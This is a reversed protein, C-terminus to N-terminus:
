GLGVGHEKLWAHHEALTSYGEDDKDRKAM